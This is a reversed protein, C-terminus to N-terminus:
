LQTQSQTVPPDPPRNLSYGANGPQTHKHTHTTTYLQRMLITGANGQETRTENNRWLIHYVTREEKVQNKTHASVTNAQLQLTYLYDPANVREGGKECRKERYGSYKIAGGIYVTTDRLLFLDDGHLPHFQTVSHQPPWERSLSVYM